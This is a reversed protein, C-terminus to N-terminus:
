IHNQAASCTCVLELWAGHAHGFAPATSECGFQGAQLPRAKADISYLHMTNIYSRGRLWARRTVELPVLRKLWPTSSHLYCQGAAATAVVVSVWLRM